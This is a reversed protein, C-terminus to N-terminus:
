WPSTGIKGETFQRVQHDTIDVLRVVHNLYSYAHGKYANNKSRFRHAIDGRVTIYEDLKACAQASSMGRWKWFQCVNDLDLLSKFLNSVGESKPTNLLDSRKEMIGKYYDRLEQQWGTGALNWIELKEDKRRLIQGSVKRRVEEPFKEISPANELMFNFAETAVDEVYVEWCATILLIASRNLVEVNNKFGPGSGAIEAHIEWLREIDAKDQTFGKHAESYSHM